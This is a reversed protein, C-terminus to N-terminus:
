PLKTIDVKISISNDISYKEFERVLLFTDMSVFTSCNRTDAPKQFVTTQIALYDTQHGKGIVTIQVELKLPWALSYDSNGSTVGFHVDIQSIYPVATLHLEFQYGSSCLSHVPSKIHFPLM